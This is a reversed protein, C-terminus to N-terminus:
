MRSSGEPSPCDSLVNLGLVVNLASAASIASLTPNHWRYAYRPSRSFATPRGQLGFPAAVFLFPPPNVFAYWGTFGAATQAREQWQLDYAAQPLGALVAKASGWFALFDSGDPGQAQFWAVALLALSAIGVLVAYGRVRKGDLWRADRLFSPGTM